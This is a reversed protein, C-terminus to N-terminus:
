QLCSEIVDVVKKVAGKNAQFVEFARKGAAVAKKEDHLLKAITQYLSDADDVQVAGRKEVLMEAIRAFDTMYPGFIVPKAFLAPELPNHGGSPVLSGGTFAVDSLAYLKKLLGIVDIIIIDPVKNQNKIQSYLTPTFGSSEFIQVVKRSRAPDRPVVIMVLDPTQKKLRFFAQCLLDEEGKHTSGAIVIKQSTSIRLSKKMNDIDIDSISVAPQDFKMNGTQVLRNKQTGLDFFRNTDIDSQTCIKSFTAFMSCIFSSFQRYGNFSKESLRANVWIAPIKKRQLEFLFNPWIDTEVMIFLAPDIKRIKQKVTLFFDYPFFFIGDVHDAIRKKAIDEGTMTSVSFFIKRDRIRQRLAMVLPAASLAEGLSLAHIWVPKKSHQNEKIKRTDHPLFFFLRQLVTKKRKESLLFM